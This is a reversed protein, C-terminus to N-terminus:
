VPWQHLLPGFLPIYVSQWEYIKLCQKLKQWLVVRLWWFLTRFCGMFIVGFEPKTRDASKRGYLPNGGGARDVSLAPYDAIGLGSLLSIYYLAISTSTAFTRIWGLWKSSWGLRIGVPCTSCFQRYHVSCSWISHRHFLTSRIPFGPM